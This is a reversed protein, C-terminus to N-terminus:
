DPEQRETDRTPQSLRDSLMAAWDYVHRGQASTSALIITRRLIRRLTAEFADVFQQIPIKAGNADKPEPSQSGHVVSSRLDYATRFLRFLDPGSDEEDALLAAHVSFRYRIEGRYKPDGIDHLLMAEAAIVLDVLRDEPRTRESSYNFRRVATDLYSQKTVEPVCFKRWFDAFPQLEEGKLAYSGFQHGQIPTAAHQYVLGAGAESYSLIGPHAFTGSKFLRLAWIVREAEAQADISAQLQAQALQPLAEGIVKKLIMSRRICFQPIPAFAHGHVLGVRRLRRIEGPTLKSISLDRSLTLEPADSQFRTLPVIIKSEVEMQYLQSELAGYAESFKDESFQVSRNRGLLAVLTSDAWSELTRLTTTLATGVLQDIQAAIVPDSRLLDCCKSYEPLSHVKARLVILAEVGPDMPLAVFTPITDDDEEYSVAIQSVLPRLVDM